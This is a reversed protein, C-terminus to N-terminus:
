GLREGTEAHFAHEHGTRTQLNVTDGLRPASRGDTRVV